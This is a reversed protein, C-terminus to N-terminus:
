KGAQCNTVKRTAEKEFKLAIPPRQKRWGRLGLALTRKLAVYLLTTHLSWSLKLLTLNDRPLIHPVLFSRSHRGEFDRWLELTQVLLYSLPSYIQMMSYGGTGQPRSTRSWYFLRVGRYPDMPYVSYSLRYVRRKARYVQCKLVSIKIVLQKLVLGPVSSGLLVHWGGTDDYGHCSRM